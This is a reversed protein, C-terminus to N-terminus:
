VGLPGDYEVVLLAIADEFALLAMVYEFTSLAMMYAFALFTMTDEFASLAVMANGFALHTMTNLGGLPGDYDFRRSPWQM